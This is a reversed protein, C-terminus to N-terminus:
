QTDTGPKYTREFVDTILRRAEAALYDADALCPPNLPRSSPQPQAAPGYLERDWERLVRDGEPSLCCCCWRNRPHGTPEPWWILWQEHDIVSVTIQQLLNGPAGDVSILGDYRTIRGSAARDLLHHAVRRAADDRPFATM